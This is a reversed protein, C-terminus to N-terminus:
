IMTVLKLPSPLRLVLLTGGVYHLNIHQMEHSTTMYVILQAYRFQRKTPVNQLSSLLNHIKM